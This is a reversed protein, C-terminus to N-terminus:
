CNLLSMKGWVWLSYKAGSREWRKSKLRVTWIRSGRLSVCVGTQLNRLRSYLLARPVSSGDSQRTCFAGQGVRLVGPATGRRCCLQLGREWRWRVRPKRWHGSPWTVPYSSLWHPTLLFSFSFGSTETENNFVIIFYVWFCFISIFFLYICTNFYFSSFRM